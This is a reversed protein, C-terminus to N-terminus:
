RETMINLSHSSGTVRNTSWKRCIDQSDLLYISESFFSNTFISKRAQASFKERVCQLDCDVSLM